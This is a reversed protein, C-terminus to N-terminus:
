NHEFRAGRRAAHGLPDKLYAEHCEPCLDYRFTKFVGDELDEADMGEMEELLGQMEDSRDEALDDGTIEMPDYAAYVEIKVVYRTDEDALLTKGCLDCTFHIMFREWAIVSEPWDYARGADRVLGAGGACLGLTSAVRM